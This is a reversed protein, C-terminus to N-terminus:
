MPQAYQTETSACVPMVANRSASGGLALFSVVTSPLTTTIITNMRRSGMAIFNM